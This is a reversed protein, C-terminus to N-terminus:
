ALLTVIITLSFLTSSCVAATTVFHDSHYVPIPPSSVVMLIQMLRFSSLFLIALGSSLPRLRKQSTISFPHIRQLVLFLFIVGVSIPRQPAECFAPRFLFPPRAYNSLRTAWIKLFFNAGFSPPRFHTPYYFVSLGDGSSSYETIM